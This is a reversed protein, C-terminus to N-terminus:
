FVITAISHPPLELEIGIDGHTVTVTQSAEQRSMLVTCTRESRRYAVAMLHETCQNMCLRCMGPELFHSFHAIYISMPQVFIQGGEVNSAVLPADCINGVWNPGGISDLALNWDLWGQVGQGLSRIIEEGYMEGRDWNGLSVGVCPPSLFRSFGTCMETEILFVEDHKQEDLLNRTEGLIGYTDGVMWDMPGLDWFKDLLGRGGRPKPPYQYWHYGLGSVYKMADTNQMLRKTFRPLEFRQDDYAVILADQKAEKLAPGLFQGIFRVLEDDTWSMSEWTQELAGPLLKPENQPTIAWIPVGGSQYASIFKSFYAAYSAYFEEKLRSGVYTPKDKMWPPATWPSALVKLPMGRRRGAARLFDMRREDEPALAFSDGTLDGEKTYTYRREGFDCSGIPVRALNYAMGKASYLWDLTAEREEEPVSALAKMAADTMAGGFGLLPGGLTTSSFSVASTAVRLSSAAAVPVEVREFAPAGAASIVITAHGPRPAQGAAELLHLAESPRLPRWRVDHNRVIKADRRVNDGRDRTVCTHMYRKYM